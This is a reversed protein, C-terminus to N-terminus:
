TSQAERLTKSGEIAFFREAVEESCIHRDNTDLCMIIFPKKRARPKFGWLSFNKGNIKAIKNPDLPKRHKSFGRGSVFTDSENRWELENQLAKQEKTLANEFAVVFQFKVSDDDYSANGLDFKMGHNKLPEELIVKLEERLMRITEKNMKM